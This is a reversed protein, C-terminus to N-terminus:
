RLAFHFSDNHFRGFARRLADSVHPFSLGVLLGYVLHAGLVFQAPRAVAIPQGTIWQVIMAPGLMWVLFGYTMGFVWGGRRDNAARMFIWGYAAGAAVMVVAFAAAVLKEDFALQEAAQAVAGGFHAVALAPGIGLLGAIAGTTMPRETPGPVYGHALLFPSNM